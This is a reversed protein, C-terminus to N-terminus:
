NGFAHAVAFAAAAIMVIGSARTTYDPRPLLREATIGLAVVIMAVLSMVGTVALVAMFGMCCWVCDAGWVLGQRFANRSNPAVLPNCAEANRCKGLRGAKWSTLQFCGALLLVVATAFPVHRALLPWKMEAAVSTVGLAYVALGLVDWLLFYGAGALGMLRVRHVVDMGQLSRRYSLLTPVLSPLMMAMMMVVWMGTFSAAATVWSQDPMKMWVMSMRWGGPMQMGGPMSACLRVTVIASALFLLACTALVTREFATFDTRMSNSTTSFTPLLTEEPRIWLKNM